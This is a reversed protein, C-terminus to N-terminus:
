YLAGTKPAPQKQPTIRASPSMMYFWQNRLYVRISVELPFLVEIIGQVICSM